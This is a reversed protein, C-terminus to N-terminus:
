WNYIAYKKFIKRFIREWYNWTFYISNHKRSTFIIQSNERKYSGYNKGTWFLSYENEKDINLLERVLNETYTGIGSGNYLTIGRADISIKM